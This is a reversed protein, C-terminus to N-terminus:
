TTIGARHHVMTAGVAMQTAMPTGKEVRVRLLISSSSARSWLGGM